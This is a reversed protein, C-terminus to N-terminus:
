QKGERKTKIRAKKLFHSDPLADIEASLSAPSTPRYGNRRDEAARQQNERIQNLWEGLPIDAKVWPPANKPIRITRIDATREHRNLILHAPRTQSGKQMRWRDYYDRCYWTMTYATGDAHIKWDHRPPLLNLYIEFQVNEFGAELLAGAIPNSKPSEPDNCDCWRAHSIHNSSIKIIM